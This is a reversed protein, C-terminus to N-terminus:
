RVKFSIGTCNHVMHLLCKIAVGGYVSSGFYTSQACEEVRRCERCLKTTLPVINCQTSIYGGDESRRVM